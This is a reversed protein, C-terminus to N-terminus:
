SDSGNKGGKLIRCEEERYGGKGWCVGGGGGKKIGGSGGGVREM